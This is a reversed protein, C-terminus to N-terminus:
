SLTVTGSASDEIFIGGYVVGELIGSEQFGSRLVDAGADTPNKNVGFHFEGNGSLDNALPETAKVLADNGSSQFVQLTNATFDLQLALNTWVGATFPTTFLTKTGAGTNGQIVLDNKTSGDSGLLTGTRIVFLNASFDARELFTLLYEHSTNLPNTASPQLSVHLTKIGITTNGGGNPNLETRRVATQANAAVGGPVFISQDNIQVEIAKAGVGADFLSAPVDPFAILQSFTLNQGKVNDKGFPSAATDFDAATAAAKVRGDFVPAVAQRDKVVVVRGHAIAAVSLVALYKALM